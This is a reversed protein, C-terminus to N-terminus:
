CKKYTLTHISKCEPTYEFSCNLRAEDRTRSISTRMGEQLASTSTLYSKQRSASLKRFRTSARLTDDRKKKKKKTQSRSIYINKIVLTWTYVRPNQLGNYCWKTIIIMYFSVSWFPHIIINSKHYLNLYDSM